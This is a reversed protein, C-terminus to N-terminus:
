RAFVRKQVKSMEKECLFTDHVVVRRGLRVGHINAGCWACRVEVKKTM